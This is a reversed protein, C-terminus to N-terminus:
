HARYLFLLNENKKKKTSLYCSTKNKSPCIKDTVKIKFDNILIMSAFFGNFKRRPHRRPADKHLM